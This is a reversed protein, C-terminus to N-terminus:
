CINSLNLMPLYRELNVQPGSVLFHPSAVFFKRSLCENHLREVLFGFNKTFTDYWHVTEIRLTMEMRFSLSHSDLLVTKATAFAIGPIDRLAAPQLVQAMSFGLPLWKRLMGM